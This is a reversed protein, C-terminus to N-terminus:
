LMCEFYLTSGSLVLVKSCQSVVQSKKGKTQFKLEKKGLRIILNNIFEADSKNFKKNDKIFEPFNEAKIEEFIVETIEKRETEGIEHM